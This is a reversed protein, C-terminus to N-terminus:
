KSLTFLQIKEILTNLPNESVNPINSGGGGAFQQPKPPPPQQNGFPLFFTQGKRETALQQSQTVPKNSSIQASAPKNAGSVPKGAMENLQRGISLLNLYPEPNIAQKYPGGPRVEYHLHINTSRGTSGIEGITQGNYVDGNKVMISALHAFRFCTGNCMIDVMNGYGGHQGAFVVKGSQRFAVYYGKQGSTGIDIGEHIRGRWQSYGFRDSIGVRQTGGSPGSVNIEDKVTTTVGPTITSKTPTSTKPKEQGGPKFSRIFDNHKKRRGPKVDAAPNEWYNMWWEASEEASKFPIKFYQPSVGEGLAFDVQGKWNTKYDPVAQLFAQKRSPFTYQFLGVGGTGKGTEDAGIRFGSEGKINALIGMAHIHSVNKSRLYSYIAQPNVVGGEVEKGGLDPAQYTSEAGTGTEQQQQQQGEEEIGFDFPQQLLQIAKEFDKEMGQVGNQIQNLSNEISRSQDTFDFAVLNSFIAGLLSGFGSLTIGLNKVWDGLITTLKGIREILQQSLSIIIPLNQILWGVMLTGIFDLVRGLFGKTSSGMVKGQRKIAGGVSSSEIVDERERRRVAERRKEFNTRDLKIFSQKSRNSTVLTSNISMTTKQTSSLSKSFSGVSKRINDIGITSKRLTQQIAM